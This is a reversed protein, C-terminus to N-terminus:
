TLYYVKGECGVRNGYCTESRKETACLQTIFVTYAQIEDTSADINVSSLPAYAAKQNCIAIVKCNPM